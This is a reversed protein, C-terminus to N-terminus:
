GGLIEGKMCIKGGKRVLVEWRGDGIDRGCIEYEEGVYVPAVARYSIERIGRQEGNGGVGACHDRWYDLMSILNIPGHVVCAPHGEITASWTPDYHIKHGNFTLASFRFLGTPSWRLHRTPYAGDKPVDKVTSPGKVVAERLTKEAAPSPITAEPRFIWNREDVLALGRSGAFEKLVKVLVMEGGDSGVKAEAGILKTTETVEDGIRLGGEGDGTEWRMRGGAWMRRTFPWPANWSVDTGDLGLESEVGGPTFYVLHYGPPVLTGPEPPQSAIDLGPYLSTRGLTLSLKQLQNGDLIQRAKVKQNAYSSLLSEAAEKASTTTSQHRKSQLISHSTFPTFPHHPIRRLTAPISSIPRSMKLIPRPM